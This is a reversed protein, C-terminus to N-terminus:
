QTSALMQQQTYEWLLIAGSVHVNLSRIVGFQPIEVCVDVAQLIDVPVGEREKGLVIVMKRPLKVTSLCESSATQEVAVITYGDSKWRRLAALLEATDPRVEEIPMWKDATVSVTAFTEDNCVRSNPVILSQANFIECTRALGALNPVKDVLSACMIVPQRPQRRVNLGTGGEQRQHNRGDHMAPPLLSDDLLIPNTDIKRQVNLAVLGGPSAITDAAVKVQDEVSNAKSSFVERQFQEYLENLAHRFQTSFVLADDYPLLEHFDNLFSSTLLGLLSTEYEPRFEEIQRAQRRYMRKSEKNESLFLATQRLFRADLGKEAELLPLLRPLLEALLYQALVRTHGHSSNLWPLMTQVLKECCAVEGYAGAVLGDLAKQAGYGAILLLSTVIQPTLNFNRLLPLLCQDMAVAPYQAIFQMSFLETYFRVSQLQPVPLAVRLLKAVEGSRKADIHKGLVCLAQWARIKKGFGDSNIMHQKQWEPSGHLQLLRLLLAMKLEHAPADTALEDLWSLLVLRVFRDKARMEMASPHTARTGTDNDGDGTSSTLSVYASASTTALQEKEDIIPEKYLLLTVIEEVFWSAAQPRARWIQCLRCTLHFIVNPRHVAGFAIIRHIWSRMVSDVDHALPECLMFAPQFMCYVVARTLVDPKSKCDSYASWLEEILSSIAKTDTAMVVALRHLTVSLVTVMPLLATPETGATSLSTLCTELAERLVPTPTFSSAVLVNEMLQWKSVAVLRLFHARTKSGGGVGRQRGSDLQLLMPAVSAAQFATLADLAASNSSVVTLCRIAIARTTIDSSKILLAKLSECIADLQTMPTLNADEDTMYIAMRALVWAWSTVIEVEENLLEDELEDEVVTDARAIWEDFLGLALEFLHQCSMADTYFVNPRFTIGIAAEGANRCLAAEQELEIRQQEFAAVLGLVDKEESKILKRLPTGYNITAVDGAQEVEATLLVLRALQATDLGGTFPDYEGLVNALTNPTASNSDCFWQITHVLADGRKAVLSSIPFVMLVRTIPALPLALADTFGGTLAHHLAQLMRNRIAQPFSPLVHVEMMFRLMDIAQVSLLSRQWAASGKAATAQLMENEFVQVMSQLAEPSHAPANPGFMATQVALVYENLLENPEAAESGHELSFRLFTALFSAVLSQFVGRKAASKYMLPDNLAYLVSDFIFVRFVPDCAFSASRDVDGGDQDWRSWTTLCREMFKSLFLRKTVSNDHAFVRALLSKAWEFSMVVPWSSAEEGSNSSSTKDQAAVVLSNEILYEVQPWVQEILHQEQHMLIVEAGTIFSQWTDIWMEQKTKTKKKAKRPEAAAEAELAYHSFALKLIHLGQKRLLPDHQALAFSLLHQLEVNAVLRPNRPVLLCVLFLLGQTSDGAGGHRKWAALTTELLEATLKAKDESSSLLAPVLHVASARLFRRNDSGIAAHCIRSTQDVMASPTADQSDFLVRLVGCLADFSTDDEEKLQDVGLLIGAVEDFLAVVDAGAVLSQLLRLATGHLASRSEVRLIPLLVSHVLESSQVESKEILAAAAVLKFHYFGGANVADADPVPVLLASLAATDVVDVSGAAVGTAVLELQTELDISVAQAAARQQWRRWSADLQRELATAM